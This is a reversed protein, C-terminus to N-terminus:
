FSIYLEPVLHKFSMQCTPNFSTFSPRLLVKTVTRILTFVEWAKMESHTLGFHWLLQELGPIPLLRKKFLVVLLFVFHSDYCVQKKYKKYDIFLLEKTGSFLCNINDVDDNHLVSKTGGSSFWMVQLTLVVHSFFQVFVCFSKCFFLVFCLFPVFDIFFDAPTLFKYFESGKM